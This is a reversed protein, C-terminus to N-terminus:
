APHQAERIRAIADLAAERAGPSRTQGPAPLMPAAEPVSAPLRGDRVGAIARDLAATWRAKIRPWASNRIDFSGIECSSWYIAASSWQDRGSERLHTQIAAESFSGEYDPAPRCLLLFEPLTPPFARTLCADLGRRMEEVGYGDLADAWTAKVTEIDCGRWLDAFRAGYYGTLRLFIREVLAATPHSTSSPATKAIAAQSNQSQTQENTM